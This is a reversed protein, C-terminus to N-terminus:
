PVGAFVDFGALKTADDWHEAFEPDQQCVSGVMWIATEFQMANRKIRARAVHDYLHGIYRPDRSLMWLAMWFDNWMPRGRFFLNQFAWLVFRLKMREWGSGEFDFGAFWLVALASSVQSIPLGAGRRFQDLAARRLPDIDANTRYKAHELWLEFQQFFAQEVPLEPKM